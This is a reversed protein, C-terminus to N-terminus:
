WSDEGIRHLDYQSAQLFKQSGTSTTNIVQKAVNLLFRPRLSGAWRRNMIGSLNANPTMSIVDFTWSISCLRAVAWHRNTSNKRGFTLSLSLCCAWVKPGSKTSVSLDRPTNACKPKYVPGLTCSKKQFHSSSTRQPDLAFVLKPDSLSNTFYLHTKLECFKSSNVKKPLLRPRKLILEMKIENLFCSNVFNFHFQQRINRRKWIQSDFVKRKLKFHIIGTSVAPPSSKCGICQSSM